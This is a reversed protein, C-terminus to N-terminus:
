PAGGIVLKTGIRSNEKDIYPKLVRILQAMNGAFNISVEQGGVNLGSLEEKIIQRILGEPAEINRGSKQDGLVALFESNPPIVAGKALEPIRPIGFSWEGSIGTIKSVWDPIKIRFKNLGDIVKNVSRIILNLPAKVIGHLSDFINKFITKM